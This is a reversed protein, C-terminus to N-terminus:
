GIIRRTRWIEMTWKAIATIEIWRKNKILNKPAIWTGGVALVQPMDAYAALNDKNVGGVHIYSLHM